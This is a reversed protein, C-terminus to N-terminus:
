EGVSVTRTRKTTLTADKLYKEAVAIAEFERLGNCQADLRLDDVADSDVDIQWTECNRHRHENLIKVAAEITM